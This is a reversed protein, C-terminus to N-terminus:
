FFNITTPYEKQFSKKGEPFQGTKVTCGTWSFLLFFERSFLEDSLLYAVNRGKGLGINKGMRKQFHVSAAEFLPKEKLKKEFNDIDEISQMLHFDFDDEKAAPAINKDTNQNENRSSSANLNKMIFQISKTLVASDEALKYLTVNIDKLAANITADLNKKLEDFRKAVITDFLVSIDVQSDDREDVDHM